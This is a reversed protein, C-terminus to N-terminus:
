QGVKRPFASNRSSFPRLAAMFHQVSKYRLETRNETATQVIQDLEKSGTDPVPKRSALSLRYREEGAILDYGADLPDSDMVQEFEAPTVKHAALHAKNEDDWDFEIGNAM